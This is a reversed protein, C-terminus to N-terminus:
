KKVSWGEEMFQVALHDLLEPHTPPEGHLGFNDVVRSLGQGFLHLWVRNVLVRATLPNDPQTLWAALELRGSQARSVLQTAPTAAVTLFGRPVVAGRNKSDGRICVATDAARGDRVGMAQGGDSLSHLGGAGAGKKGGGKKGGAGFLMNSSDFIGALSYYD